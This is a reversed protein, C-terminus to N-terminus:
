PSCMFLLLKLQLKFSSVKFKRIKEVEKVKKLALVVIPILKMWLSATMEGMKVLM